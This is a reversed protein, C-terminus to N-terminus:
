DEDPLSKLYEVLDSKEQASLGLNFVTDYHNVVDLLTAFRGDHYFGGKGHTWLGALPATRYRKDPARNAQFDDIGIEDATHLNWGPETWLPEVHCSNCRAKGSFLEDGRKAAEEDFSGRPPKPAPIALQYLHLAALKPTIRDDDPSLDPNLNGFGNAAAIPFQTADNLRPDWFRGKGHMELNAVFANWHTVSGWGTWTHLNVGALGFAPPILTAASGGDPRFAKGDMFLEADFKGPGWSMLVKRTTADDVGLLADVVSLDPAMNIVAGVNLDRNAWGDLRHGIGKAFSNDVVSHCIACQLGVSRLTGNGNFFGTVGVVANARLLALTVAPDDLNLRGLRFDSQVSSPLADVDVKLGAAIAARPSLGPGVGGHAAGEIAEHLRLTDGWFAEDGFTDFRFTQRGQQLADLAHQTIAGDPDKPRVGPDSPGSSSAATLLVAAAVAASALLFSRVSRRM